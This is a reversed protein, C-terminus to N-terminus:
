RATNDGHDKEMLGIRVEADLALRMMEASVLCTDWVCVGGGIETSWYRRGGVENNEVMLENGRSDENIIHLNKFPEDVFDSPGRSVSKIAADLLMPRIDGIAYGPLTDKLLKLYTIVEDRTIPHEDTNRM